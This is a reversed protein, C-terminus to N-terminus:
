SNKMGFFFCKLVKMDAKSILCDERVYDLIFSIEVKTAAFFDVM